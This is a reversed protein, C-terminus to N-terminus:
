PGLSIPLYAHSPKAGDPLDLRTREVLGRVCQAAETPLDTVVVTVDDLGGDAAVNFHLLATGRSACDALQPALSPLTELIQADYSPDPTEDIALSVLDLVPDAVAEDPWLVLAVPREQRDAHALWQAATTTAGGLLAGGNNLRAPPGFYMQVALLEGSILAGDTPPATLLEFVAPMRAALVKSFPRLGQGCAVAGLLRLDPGQVALLTGTAPKAHPVFICVENSGGRMAALLEAVTTAEDIEVLTRAQESDAPAEPAPVPQGACGLAACVVLGSGRRIRM